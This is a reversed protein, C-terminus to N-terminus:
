FLEYWRRPRDSIASQVTGVQAAVQQAQEEVVGVSMLLSQVDNQLTETQRESMERASISLWLNHALRQATQETLNNGVVVKATRRSLEDVAPAASVRRAYKRLDDALDKPAQPDRGSAINQLDHTVDVLEAQVNQNPTPVPGDAQRCGALWIGAAVLFLYRVTPRM